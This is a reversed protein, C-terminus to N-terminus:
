WLCGKKIVGAEIKGEVLTGMDRYKGNIPMMFPANVKRDLSAMSDLYELLSPGDYWDAVGKPIRDKIGMTMQAASQCLSSTLRSTSDPEKSSNLL